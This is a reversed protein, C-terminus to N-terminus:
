VPRSSMPLGCAPSVTTTAAAEPATPEATPLDRPDLARARDADGAALVFAGGDLVFQAEIIAEIMAIGIEGRFELVGARLADVDIELIDAALHEFRHERQEIRERPNRHAAQDRM